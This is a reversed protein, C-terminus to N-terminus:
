KNALVACAPSPIQAIAQDIPLWLAENPSRVALYWQANKKRVSVSTPIVPSEWEKWPQQGYRERHAKAGCSFSGKWEIGNLEDAVSLKDSWVQIDDAKFFQDMIVEAPATQIGAPSGVRSSVDTAFTPGTPQPTAVVWHWSITGDSDKAFRGRYALRFEGCPTLQKNIVRLALGRAEADLASSPKPADGSQAYAASTPDLLLQWIAAALLL